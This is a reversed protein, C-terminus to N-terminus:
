LLVFRDPQLPAPLDTVGLSALLDIEVTRVMGDLPLANQHLSFPQELEDGLADLGFFTYAVLAAVVPSWWGLSGVLGFPLLGCFVYATRHVLLTYAFPLPTGMIRECGAQVAALSTLREELMAYTPDGIRGSTRLARLDGSLAALAAQPPNVAALGDAGPTALWPSDLAGAGRLRAKLAHSFVICRTVMRRREPEDAAEPVISGIMRALSRCDITLQGWLARAQWWREYCASNRFSLFISLSIGILSFPATTNQVFLQPFRGRLLTALIAVAVIALVKPAIQPVISGRVIFLLSLFSPRPRVIM